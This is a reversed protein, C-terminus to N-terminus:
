AARISDADLVAAHQRNRALRMYDRASRENIGAYALWPGFEGHGVQAKAELLLEGARIGAALMGEAHEIVLKHQTRVEEALRDLQGVATPEPPAATKLM